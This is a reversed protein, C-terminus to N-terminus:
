SKAGRIQNKGLRVKIRIKWNVLVYFFFVSQFYFLSRFYWSELHSGHVSYPLWLALPKWSCHKVSTQDCSLLAGSCTWLRQLHASEVQRDWKGLVGPGCQARSGPPFVSLWGREPRVSLLLVAAERPADGSSLSGGASAHLKTSSSLVNHFCLLFALFFDGNELVLASTCVLSWFLVWYNVEECLDRM